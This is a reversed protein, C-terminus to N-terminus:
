DPAGAQPALPLAGPDGIPRIARPGSGPALWSGGPRPSPVVLPCEGERRKSVWLLERFLRFAPVLDLQQLLGQGALM